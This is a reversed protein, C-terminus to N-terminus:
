RGLGSFISAAARAMAGHFGGTFQLHLGDSHGFPAHGHGSAQHRPPPHLFALGYLGAVFDEVDLGFFYHRDVFRGAASDQPPAKYVGTLGHRHPGRQPDDGLGRDGVSFEVSEDGLQPLIGRRRGCGCRFGASWNRFGQFHAAPAPAVEHHVSTVAGGQHQEVTEAAIEVVPEEVLRGQRGRLPNAGQIQRAVAGRALLHARGPHIPHRRRNHFKEIGESELFRVERAVGHAAGDGEMEGAVVTGPYCGSM